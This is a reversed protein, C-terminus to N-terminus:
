EGIAISDPYVIQKRVQRQLALEELMSQLERPHKARLKRLASDEIQRIRERSIGFFDGIQELTAGENFHNVFLQSEVDERYPKDIDHMYRPVSASGGTGLKKRSICEEGSKGARMRTVITEYRVGAIQAWEVVSRTVAGVTLTSRHDERSRYPVTLARSLPMRSLRRVFQNPPIKVTEAWEEVTRTVGDHEIQQQARRM